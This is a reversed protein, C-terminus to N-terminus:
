QSISPASTNLLRMLDQADRNNADLRLATEADARAGDTEGRKYHALARNAWAPGYKPSKAIERNLLDLAGDIHNTKIYLAALNVAVEDYAPDDRRMTYFAQEMKRGADEYNGQWSELLGYTALGIPNRPYIQLEIELERQALDFRKQDMYVLAMNQHTKVSNPAARLQAVALTRNDQWDSNRVITRAGLLSITVLALALAITKGRQWLWNWGLAIVLCFGLSPLYVLREAMITGIPKLINATIAFAAAYIGVALLLGRYRKIAAWLWVASVLAIGIASPLTYRLAGYVPIQNYSYDASLSAPYFQLGVYKWAVRLANLIRQTAPIEALPNDIVSIDAPGFRGGQLKWLVALYVITVGAIRLYRGWNKWKGNAYDGILVLPLFVAASEKSLLALVFCLLAPLERDHLHLIWALILFGAALLEARGVISAVAETHIPHVAFLLAAALAITRAHARQQLVTQLFIFVLCSVLAHLVLNVAHFGLAIGGGLKWDVAYTAFTVPRFVNSTKHVAFLSRLSPETVQANRVIYGLDDMTFGNLLTNAYVCAVCVLLLALCFRDKTTEEVGTWFDPVNPATQLVGGQM